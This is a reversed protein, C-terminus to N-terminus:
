KQKRVAAVMERIAPAQQLMDSKRRAPLAVEAHSFIMNTPIEYRDAVDAVLRVLNEVQLADSFAPMGTAEVGITNSNRLGKDAQGLHKALQHEDAIFAIYGDSLVAWHAFPGSLDPRGARLIAVSSDPGGATHLIIALIPHDPSKQRIIAEAPYNIGPSSRIKNVTNGDYFIPREYLSSTSTPSSSGPAPTPSGAVLMLSQLAESDLRILHNNAFFVLSKAWEQEQPAKLAEKILDNQLKVQETRMQNELQM